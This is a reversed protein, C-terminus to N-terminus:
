SFPNHTIPPSYKRSFRVHAKLLVAETEDGEQLLTAETKKGMEDFALLGAAFVTDVKDELMAHTAKLRQSTPVITTLFHNKLESGQAKM